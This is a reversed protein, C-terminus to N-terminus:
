TNPKALPTRPPQHLVVKWVIHEQILHLFNQFVCQKCRGSYEVIGYCIEHVCVKYVLLIRYLVSWVLCSVTTTGAGELSWVLCCANMEDVCQNWQVASQGTSTHEPISFLSYCWKIVGTVGKIVDIYCGDLM